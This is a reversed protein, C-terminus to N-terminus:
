AQLSVPQGLEGVTVPAPRLRCRCGARGAPSRAPTAGGVLRDSLVNFYPAQAGKAGVPASEYVPSVASVELGPQRSLWLVALPLNVERNINSGLSILVQPM